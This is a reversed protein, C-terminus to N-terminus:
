EHPAATPVDYPVAAVEVGFPALERWLQRDDVPSLRQTRWGALRTRAGARGFLGVTHATQSPDHRCAASLGTWGASHVAAAWARPLAYDSGAGLEATVGFRRAAAADLDALRVPEGSRRAVLLRRSDVDRREVVATSRFTELWAGARSDSLYCTGHPASLDFRGGVHPGVTAFWWPERPAGTMPDRAVCIRFLEAGRRLTRAPFHSLDSPPPQALM